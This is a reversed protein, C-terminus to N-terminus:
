LVSKKKLMLTKIISRKELIQSKIELFYFHFVIQSNICLCFFSQTQMKNPNAHPYIMSLVQRLKLTKYPKNM